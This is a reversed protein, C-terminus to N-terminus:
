CARPISVVINENYGASLLTAGMMQKTKNQNYQAVLIFEFFYKKLFAFFSLVTLWVADFFALALTKLFNDFIETVLTM